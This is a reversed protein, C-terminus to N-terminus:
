AGVITGVFGAPVASNASPGGLTVRNATANGGYQAYGGVIAKEGAEFPHDIVASSPLSAPDGNSNVVYGTADIPSAAYSLLPLALTTTAIATHIAICVPSQRFHSMKKSSM